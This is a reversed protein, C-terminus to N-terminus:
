ALLATPETGTRHGALFGAPATQPRCPRGPKQQRRPPDPPPAPNEGLDLLILRGINAGLLAAYISRESGLSAAFGSRDRWYTISAPLASCRPKEAARM